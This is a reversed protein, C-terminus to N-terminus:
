HSLALKSFWCARAATAIARQIFGAVVTLLRNRAMAFIAFTM